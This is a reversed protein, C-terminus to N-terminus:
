YGSGSKREHEYFGYISYTPSKYDEYAEPDAHEMAMQALSPMPPPSPIHPPKEDSRLGTKKSPGRALKSSNPITGVLPKKDTQEAGFDMLMLSGLAASGDVETIIKPLTPRDDEAHKKRSQMKPSRSQVISLSDDPYLTPQPSPMAYDTAPSSLGLAYTLAQTDRDRRSASKQMYPKHPRETPDFRDVNAKPPLNSTRPYSGPAFYTSKIRTRGGRSPASIPLPVVCPVCTPSSVVAGDYVFGPSGRKGTMEPRSEEDHTSGETVHQRGPRQVDRRPSIALARTPPLGSNVIVTGISNRPSSFYPSMSPASSRREARGLPRHAQQVPPLHLSNGSNQMPMSSTHAHGVFPYYTRGPYNHQPLKEPPRSLPMPNSVAKVPEEPQTYQTWSNSNGPLPSVKETGGFIPSDKTQFKDYDSFSDNLIPLSPTPRQRRTPRSCAKVIIFIGALFLGSGVALLIIIPTSLKHSTQPDSVTASAKSPELFSSSAPAAQSSFKVTPTPALSLLPPLPTFTPLPLASKVGTSLLHAPLSSSFATFVPYGTFQAQTPRFGTDPVPNPVFTMEPHENKNEHEVILVKPKSSPSIETAHELRSLSSTATGSPHRPAYVYVSSKVLSIPQHIPNGLSLHPAM